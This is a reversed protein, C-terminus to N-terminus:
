GKEKLKDDTHYITDFVKGLEGLICVFSVSVSKWVVM